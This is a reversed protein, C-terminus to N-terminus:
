VEGVLRSEKRYRVTIGAELCHGELLCGDSCLVSQIFSTGHYMRAMELLLKM